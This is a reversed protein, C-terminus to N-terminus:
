NVKKRDRFESPARGITKKFERSFHSRDGFGINAAVEKVSLFSEGLLAEAQKMKFLRLYQKPTLSTEAKFLHIFYWPSLHVRTALESVLLSRHNELHIIRIAAEIRRDMFVGGSSVVKSKM